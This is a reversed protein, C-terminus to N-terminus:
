QEPPATNETVESIEANQESFLSAPVDFDTFFGPEFPNYRQGTDLQLKAFGEQGIFTAEAVGLSPNLITNGGRALRFWSWPGIYSSAAGKFHDLLQSLNDRL